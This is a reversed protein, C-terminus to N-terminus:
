ESIVISSGATLSAGLSSLDCPQLCIEGPRDAKGAGNFNFVVHGIDTVKAWATEGVATIETKCGALTVKAGVQPPKVHVVDSLHQVSVEALAPPAGDAYLVLVGGDLLDAVEEGIGTVVSNLYIM